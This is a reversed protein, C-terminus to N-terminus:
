KTSEAPELQNLLNKLKDINTNKTFTYFDPRTKRFFRMQRHDLSYFQDIIQNRYNIEKFNTSGWLNDSDHIGANFSSNEFSHNVAALQQAMLSRNTARDNRQKLIAMQEFQLRMRKENASELGVNKSKVVKMKPIEKTNWKCIVPTARPFSKTKSYSNSSFSSLKCNEVDTPQNTLVEFKSLSLEFIEKEHNIHNAFYVPDKNLVTLLNESQKIPPLLTIIKNATTTEDM